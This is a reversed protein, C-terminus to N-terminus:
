ASEAGAEPHTYKVKLKKQLEYDEPLKDINTHLISHLLIEHLTCSSSTSKRQYVAVSGYMFKLITSCASYFVLNMQQPKSSKLYKTYIGRATSKKNINKLLM